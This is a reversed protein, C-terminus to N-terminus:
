CRSCSRTRSAPSNTKTRGLDRRRRARLPLSGYPDGEYFPVKAGYRIANDNFKLQDKAQRFREFDNWILIAVPQGIFMPVKGQRCCCPDPRTSEPFVIGDKVLDDATVIRDPQLDAGLWSLDIAPM